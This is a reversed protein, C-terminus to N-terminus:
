WELYLLSIIIYSVMIYALAHLWFLDDIYVKCFFLYRVLWRIKVKRVVNRQWLIREQLYVRLRGRHQSLLCVQSVTQIIQVSRDCLILETMILYKMNRKVGREAASTNKSLLASTYMYSGVINRCYACYAKKYCTKYLLKCPDIVHVLVFTVCVLVAVIWCGCHAKVSHRLFICWSQFATAWFQLSRNQHCKASINLISYFLTQMSWKKHLNAKKLWSKTKWVPSWLIVCIKFFVCWVAQWCPGNLLSSLIKIL